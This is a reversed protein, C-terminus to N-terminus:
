ANSYASTTSGAHGGIDSPFPLLNMLQYATKTRALNSRNASQQLGDEIRNCVCRGIPCHIIFRDGVFVPVSEVCTLSPERLATTFTDRHVLDEGLKAEFGLIKRDSRFVGFLPAM